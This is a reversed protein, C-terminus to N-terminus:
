SQNYREKEKTSVLKLSGKVSLTYLTKVFVPRPGQCFPSEAKPRSTYCIASWQGCQGESHTQKRSRM